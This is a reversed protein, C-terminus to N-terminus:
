GALDVCWVPVKPDRPSPVYRVVLKENADRGVTQGAALPEGREALLGVLDFYLALTGRSVADNPKVLLDSLGLAEMGVGLLMAQEAASPEVIWAGFLLMGLAGANVREVFFSAPHAVGSGLHVGVAASAKAVAAAVYALAKMCAIPSAGERTLTVRLHARHADMPPIGIFRAMSAMVAADAEGNPVPLPSSTVSVKAGDSLAFDLGAASEAVARLADGHRAVNSAYAAVIANAPPLNSPPTALLVNAVSVTEVSRGKPAPQSAALFRHFDEVTVLGEITLLDPDFWRSPPLTALAERDQSAIGMAVARLYSELRDFRVPLAARPVVCVRQQRIAGPGREGTSAELTLVHGAAVDDVGSVQGAENEVFGLRFGEGAMPFFPILARHVAERTSLSETM